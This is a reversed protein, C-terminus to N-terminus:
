INLANIFNPMSGEVHEYVRLTHFGNNIAWTRAKELHDKDTTETIISEMYSRTENKALGYLVYTIM